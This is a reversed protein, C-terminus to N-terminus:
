PSPKAFFGYLAYKAQSGSIRLNWRHFDEANPCRNGKGQLVLRFKTKPNIGKAFIGTGRVSGEWRIEKYLTVSGHGESKAPSEIDAAFFTATGPLTLILVGKEGKSTKCFFKWDQAERVLSIVFYGPEINDPVTIGSVDDPWAATTYFDAKGNLALRNLEKMEDSAVKRTSLDWAGPEACCACVPLPSKSTSAVPPAALTTLLLGVASLAKITQSFSVKRNM